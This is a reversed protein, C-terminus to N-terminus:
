GLTCHAMFSNPDLAVATEAEAIAEPHLSASGLVQARLVAVLANLPDDAVARNVEDTAEDFAGRIMCLGFLAASSRAWALLPNLTLARAFAEFGATADYDYALAIMGLTAAADALNSVVRSLWPWRDDDTLPQGAAM